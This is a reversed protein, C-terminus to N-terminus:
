EYNPMRYIFRVLQPIVRRKLWGRWSRDLPEPEISLIGPLRRARPEPATMARHPLVVKPNPHAPGVTESRRINAGATSTSPSGANEEPEETLAPSYLSSDVPLQWAISPGPNSSGVSHAVNLDRAPSNSNSFPISQSTVYSLPTGVSGSRINRITATGSPQTRVSLQQSPSGSRSNQSPLAATPNPSRSVEPNAQDTSKTAM